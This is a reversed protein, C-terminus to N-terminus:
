FPDDCGWACVALTGGAHQPHPESRLPAREGCRECQGLPCDKTEQQLDYVYADVTALYNPDLALLDRWMVVMLQSTRKLQQVVASDEDVADAM